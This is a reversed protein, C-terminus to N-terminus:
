PTPLHFHLTQAIAIGFLRRYRPDLAMYGEDVKIEQTHVHQFGEKIGAETYKELPRVLDATGGERKVVSGEITELINLHGRMDPSLFYSPDPATILVSGNPELLLRTRRFFSGLDALHSISMHSVVLDFRQDTPFDEFASQIVQTNPFRHTSETYQSVSPELGLVSRAGSEMMSALIWGTGSGVELVSKDLWLERHEKLMRWFFAEHGSRDTGWHNLEDYQHPNLAQDLLSESM